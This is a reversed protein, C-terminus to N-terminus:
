KFSNGSKLQITLSNDSPVLDTWLYDCYGPLWSSAGYQRATQGVFTTDELAKDEDGAVHAMLATGM